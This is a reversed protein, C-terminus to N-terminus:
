ATAEGEATTFTFLASPHSQIYDSYVLALASMIAAAEVECNYYTATEGSFSSM